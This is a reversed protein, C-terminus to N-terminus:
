GRPAGGLLLRVQRAMELEERAAVVAVAAPSSPPSIIRDDTPAANAAPEVSLGLFSLGACTDSRLRSSNEGAGGTFVLADLGDMAAAMAGILSRLRHLYTAYALRAPPDGADVRALVERLDGSQGSLGLLGSRNQLGDDVEAASLGGQTQLWLLLGPDVNGSRTAMVLGELPTMGMTTDVSRGGDVAALSAGAGLHAVVLRLEGLPRGLLAATRRAAWAHSLGQFGYRRIRWREVWDTPLAYAAAEPPLRAHFTTDFCAVQRLEPRLRQFLRIGAIALPNHLPALSSAAELRRIVVEDTDVADILDPGGHVVRHAAVDIGSQEDLFAGAATEAEAALVDHTAVLSDDDAVVRLKLSSSGANVVLIQM